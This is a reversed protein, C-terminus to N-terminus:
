VSIARHLQPMDAVTVIGIPAETNRGNATLIIADLSAGSQFFEDFAALADFVTGGQGMLTHNCTEEAYQMVKDVTEEELIGLGSALCGALWRAVTEATLLGIIMNGDYVPLQSFVGDHMKKAAIGVPDTAACTEVRKRFLNILKPPPLLEDRIAILQEVTHLSPIAAPVDRRYEHVVFNRLEGFDKLHARLRRVIRDSSAAKDVLENFRTYRDANVLRWLHKEIGSFADLFRSSLDDM